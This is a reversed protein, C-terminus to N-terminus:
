ERPIDPIAHPAVDPLDPCSGALAVFRRRREEADSTLPEILLAGSSTRSIFAETGPLRFERPLRAAQSGGHKFIKIIRRNTPASPAAVPEGPM